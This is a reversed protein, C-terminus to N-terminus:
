SNELLKPTKTKVVHIDGFLKYISKCGECCFFKRGEDHDFFFGSVNVELGCYDCGKM